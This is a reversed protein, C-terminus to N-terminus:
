KSKTTDGLTSLMKIVISDNPNTKLFTELKQRAETTRNQRKYVDALATTAERWDPYLELAKNLFKESNVADGLASYTYSLYYCTLSSKLDLSYARQLIQLGQQFQKGQILQMAYNITANVETSLVHTRQTDFKYVDMIEFNKDGTTYLPTQNVVRYWERLFALYTVGKSKMYDVMTESYNKDMLKSINEPNILGAVDIIKRGSYFGIAGVDHTAIISNEPTNEKLWKATTVQRLSIHRCQDQYTIKNASYSIVSLVIAILLIGVSLANSINKEKLYGSMLKFFERSGYSFLLIYFPIVPMLYRGFRHAYPLNYWYIFILIFVFLLPLLFRNYKKKVSDFVIKLLAIFFPIILIVYSTETFYGWVEEKMFAARSRFEPTYYTLKAAYTNPLLTGALFLNMAFYLVTLVAFISGIKILDSKTFLEVESTLKTKNKLYAFWFYDIAIAALFAIGDPRSWLILGFFIGLPVAKRKKYFYFCALLIFIHMTTEMGSGAILNIWKDLVFILTAGIAIWNEEAFLNGATRYFIFASLAFFGIGLIYSLIMENKTVLFGAALLLTYIPSTSGATVVENKFYSFSGYDVLNKAFTLHIWPDDLPFGNEKNVTFAHQIYFYSLVISLIIFTLLIINNLNSKIPLNFRIDIAKLSQKEQKRKQKPM